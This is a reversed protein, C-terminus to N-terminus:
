ILGRRRKANESAARLLAEQEDIATTADGREAAEANAVRVSVNLIHQANELLQAKATAVADFTPFALRGSAFSHISPPVHAVFEV